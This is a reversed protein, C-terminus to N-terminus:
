NDFGRATGSWGTWEMTTTPPPGTSARVVDERAVCTRQYTRQTTDVPTHLLVGGGPAEGGQSQAGRLRENARTGRGKDLLVRETSYTTLGYKDKEESRSANHRACRAEDSEVMRGSALAAELAVAEDGVPLLYPGKGNCFSVRVPSFRRVEEFSVHMMRESDHHGECDCKGRPEMTVPRNTKVALSVYNLKNADETGETAVKLFIWGTFADDRIWDNVMPLCVTQVRRARINDLVEEGPYGAKGVHMVYVNSMPVRDFTNKRAPVPRIHKQTSPIDDEDSDDDSDVLLPIDPDHM